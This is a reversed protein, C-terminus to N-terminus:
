RQELRAARAVWERHPDTRARAAERRPHVDAAADLDHNRDPDVRMRHAVEHLAESGPDVPLDRHHASRCRGGFRHRAADTELQRSLVELDLPMAAGRGADFLVGVSEDDGGGVLCRHAMLQLEPELGCGTFAQRRPQQLQRGIEFVRDRADRDAALAGAPAAARGAACDAQIARQYKKARLHHAIQEYVFKCVRFVHIVGRAEPVQDRFEFGFVATEVALKQGARLRQLVQSLSDEPVTFLVTIPQLQTLVVIGNADSTQVYNGQDVQRLGVRGTVPSTIKTYIINVKATDIQGQDNIVAGEYQKVLSAQTDLQQKAISNQQWLVEYRKLDIKAEALLAQDRKLTGQVQTLVAQYPAPDIQALVQGAKV